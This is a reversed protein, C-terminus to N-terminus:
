TGVSAVSLTAEQEVSAAKMNVNSFLKLLRKVMDRSPLLLYGIESISTVFGSVSSLSM